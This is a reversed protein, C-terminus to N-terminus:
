QSFLWYVHVLFDNVDNYKDDERNNYFENFLSDDLLRNSITQKQKISDISGTIIPTISVAMVFAYLILFAITFYKQSFIKKFEYKYLSLM